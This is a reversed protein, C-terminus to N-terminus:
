IVGWRWWFNMDVFVWGLWGLGVFVVEVEFCFGDVVWILFVFRGIDVLVVWGMGRVWVGVLCGDFLCKVIRGSLVLFM